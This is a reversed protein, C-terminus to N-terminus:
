LAGHSVRNQGLDRDMNQHIRGNEDVDLTAATAFYSEDGNIMDELWNYLEMFVPTKVMHRSM